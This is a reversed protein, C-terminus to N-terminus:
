AAMRDENDAESSASFKWLSGGAHTRLGIKDRVDAFANHAAIIKARAEQLASAAEGALAFADQTVVPSLNAHRQARPVTLTLEASAMLADDIARECASLSTTVMRAAAIRNKLM